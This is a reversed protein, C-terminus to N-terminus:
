SIHREKYSPPCWGAWHYVKKKKYGSSLMNLTTNELQQTDYASYILTTYTRLSIHKEASYHDPSISTHPGLPMPQAKKNLKATSICQTTYILTM